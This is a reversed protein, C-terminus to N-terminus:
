GAAKLRAVENTGNERDAVQMALQETFSLSSWSKGGATTTAASGQASMGRAGSGSFHYAQTSGPARLSEVFQNLPTEVGGVLGVVQGDKLQLNEKHLAFLDKPTHAGAQAFANLAVNEVQSQTFAQGQDSIQKRLEAIEAEKEGVTGRLVDVLETAKGDRLLKEQLAEQGEAEKDALQENKRTIEDRLKSNNKELKRIAEQMVAIQDSGAQTPVESGAQTQQETQDSM